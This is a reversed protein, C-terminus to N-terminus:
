RRAWNLGLNSFLGSLFGRRPTSNNAAPTSNVSSAVDAPPTPPQTGFPVGPDDVPPLNVRPLALVPGMGDRDTPEDASENQSSRAGHTSGPQDAPASLEPGNNAAGPAAPRGQGPQPAAPAAPKDLDFPDGPPTPLPAQGGRPNRPATGPRDTDTPEDFPSRGGSPLPPREPPRTAGPLPQMGEAPEGELGPELREGVTPPFEKFSKAKDPGYRSPCGWGAPFQDWCTPHYGFYRQKYTKYIPDEQDCPVRQRRIPALPFLGTQQARALEPLSVVMTLAALVLGLGRSRSNTRM